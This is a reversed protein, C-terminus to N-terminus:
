SKAKIVCSNSMPGALSIGDTTEKPLVALTPIIALLAAMGYALAPMEGGRRRAIDNRRAWIAYIAIALALLAFVIVLLPSFGTSFFLPLAIANQVAWGLVPASPLALTRPLLRQALAFGVCTWLLLALAASISVNLLSVM